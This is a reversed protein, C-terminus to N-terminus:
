VEVFFDTVNGNSDRYDSVVDFKELTSQNTICGTFEDKFDWVYLENTNKDKFIGHGLFEVEIRKTNM